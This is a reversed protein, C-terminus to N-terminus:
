KWRCCQMKKQEQLLKAELEAIKSNNETNIKELAEEVAKKSYGFLSSKIKTEEAM